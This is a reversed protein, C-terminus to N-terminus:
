IIYIFIYGDIYGSFENGFGVYCILDIFNCLDIVKFGFLLSLSLLLGGVCNFLNGFVVVVVVNDVYVVFLLSGFSISGLLVGVVIDIM